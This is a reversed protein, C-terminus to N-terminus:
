RRGRVDRRSSVSRRMRVSRGRPLPKPKAPPVAKKSGDKAKAEPKISLMDAVVEEFPLPIRIETGKGM